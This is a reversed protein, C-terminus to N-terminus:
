FRAFVRKAFNKLMLEITLNLAKLFSAVSEFNAAVFLISRAFMSYFLGFPSRSWQVEPQQYDDL